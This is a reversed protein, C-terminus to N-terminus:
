AQIEKDDDKAVSETINKSQRSSNRKHKDCIRLFDKKGGGNASRWYKRSRVVKVEVFLKRLLSNLATNVAAPYKIGTENYIEVETFAERNKAYLMELIKLENIGLQQIDKSGQEKEFANRTIVM